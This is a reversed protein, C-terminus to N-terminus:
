SGIFGPYYGLLAFTENVGCRFGSIKSINEIGTHKHTIYKHQQEHLVKIDTCFTHSTKLIAIKKGGV